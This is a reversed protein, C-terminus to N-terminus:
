TNWKSTILTTLSDPLWRYYLYTADPCKMINVWSKGARELLDWDEWYINRYWGLLLFVQRKIFITAWQSTESIPIKKTPDDKDPVFADWIVDMTWYLYEATPNQKIFEFRKELHGPKYEDDSDIAAIWESNSLLVGNNKATSVWTNNQSLYKIRTDNTYKRIAEDTNDTSWDNIIILEFQTYTQNLVSEIARWVLKERNFVPLIISVNAQKDM